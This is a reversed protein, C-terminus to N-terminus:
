PELHGAKLVANRVFQMVAREVRAHGFKKVSWYRLPGVTCLLSVLEAWVEPDPVDFAGSKNGERLLERWLEIAAGSQRYSKRRDEPRLHRGEEYLLMIIAPDARYLTLLSDLAATLRNDVPEGPQTTAQKVAAHIQDLIATFVLTLLDEKTKIYHYMTPTTMGAATAVDKVSARIFGKESFVKIAAHVLADRRDVKPSSSSKQAAAKTTGPAPGHLSPGNILQVHRVVSAPGGEPRTLTTEWVMTAHDRHIRRSEGELIGHEENLRTITAEITRAGGAEGLNHAAGMRVLWDAFRLLDPLGGPADALPTWRGAVRADSCALISLEAPLREDAKTTSPANAASM